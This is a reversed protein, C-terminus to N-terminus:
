RGAFAIDGATVWGAMYPLACAEEFTKRLLGSALLYGELRANRLFLARLEGRWDNLEKECNLLEGLSEAAKKSQRAVAIGAMADFYQAKMRACKPALGRAEEEKTIAAIREEDLKSREM